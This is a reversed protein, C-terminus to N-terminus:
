RPLPTCITYVPPLPFPMLGVAQQVACRNMIGTLYGNRLMM